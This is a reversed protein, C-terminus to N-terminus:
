SSANDKKTRFKMGPEAAMALEGELVRAMGDVKKGVSKLLTTAPVEKNDQPVLEGRFAKSLIAQPLQNITEQLRKYSSEVSDAMALLSQIRIVIKKQVHLPPLLIEFDKLAPMYITGVTTGKGSAILSERSAMLCYMLYYNDLDDGCIWNAFHQTTSMDRGMMTVFGVSIDRSFCVTGAPLIRASSNQIGAETTCYKTETIVRGHADRIDQLSIWPITGGDWYEAVNKRPTHGSELIAVNILKEWRWNRPAAVPAEGISIPNRILSIPDVLKGTVAQTLVAQRFQKVLIPINQLRTKLQDLHAFLTDLKVVIRKQEPLPPLKTEIAEILKSSINPQAGGYAQDEIEKKHIQIWYYIFSRSIRPDKPLFNGVRQNQLALGDSVFRGIKGTTAGSMAVLVDGKEINFGDKIKSKPVCVANDTKVEGEQIDSIRIVPIGEDVYDESKFAYGNKLTVFDGLKCSVWSDTRSM